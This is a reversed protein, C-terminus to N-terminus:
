GHIWHTNGPKRMLFLNAMSHNNERASKGPKRAKAASKMVKQEPQGIAEIKLWTKIVNGKGEKIRKISHRYIDGHKSHINYIINSAQRRSIGFSHAVDDCCFYDQGLLIWHAVYEHLTKFEKGELEQPVIFSTHNSQKGSVVRM